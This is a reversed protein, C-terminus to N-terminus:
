AYVLTDHSGVDRSNFQMLWLASFDSAEAATLQRVQSEITYAYQKFTPLGKQVPTWYLQPLVLKLACSYVTAYLAAIIVHKFRQQYMTTELGNGWKVSVQAVHAGQLNVGPQLLGQLIEQSYWLGFCLAFSLALLVVGLLLWDNSTFM